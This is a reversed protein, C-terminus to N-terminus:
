ILFISLFSVTELRSFNVLTTYNLNKIHNNTLKLHILTNISNNIIVVPITNFYNGSLDLIEIYKAHLEFPTNIDIKNWSINLSILNILNTITSPIINLRNVSADLHILKGAFIFLNNNYTEMQGNTWHSIKIVPCYGPRHLQIKLM